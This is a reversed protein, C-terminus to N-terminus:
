TLYKGVLCDGLGAATQKCKKRLFMTSRRELILLFNLNEKLCSTMKAGKTALICGIKKCFSSSNKEVKEKIFTNARQGVGV